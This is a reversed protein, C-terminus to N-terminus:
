GRIGTLKSGIVFVLDISYTSLGHSTSKCKSRKINVSANVLRIAFKKPLDSLWTVTQVV